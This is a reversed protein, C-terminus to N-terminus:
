RKKLIFIKLYIHKKELKVLNTKTKEIKEEKIFLKFKLDNINLKLFFNRHSLYIYVQKSNFDM